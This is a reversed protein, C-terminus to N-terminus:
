PLIKKFYTVAAGNQTAMEGGAEVNQGHQKVQEYVKQDVVGATGDTLDKCVSVIYSQEIQKNLSKLNKEHNLDSSLERM